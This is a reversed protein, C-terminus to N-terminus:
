REDGGEPRSERLFEEYDTPNILRTIFPSQGLAVGVIIAGVSGLGFGLTTVGFTRAAMEWWTKEDVARLMAEVIRSPPPLVITRTSEAAIRAWAEWLVLVLLPVVAAQFIKALRNM